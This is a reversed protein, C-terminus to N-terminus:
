PLERRLIREWAAYAELCRDRDAASPEVRDLLCLGTFAEDPAAFLGVGVGAGRAAGQAGDTEFLELAAGSVTPSPRAFLPSLFM